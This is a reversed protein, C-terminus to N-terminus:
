VKICEIIARRANCLTTAFLYLKGGEAIGSNKRIVDVTIPFNRVTINAQPIMKGLQKLKKGSFEYQNKVEFIRGPFDEVKEDSTYLHSNLHLKEVKYRYAVSKFAGSKLLAANPEYLYHKVREAPRFTSEKEEERLYSFVQRKERDTYNVATIKTKTPEAPEPGLVFLIEKCENKVALIHIETTEPLLHLTETLDAMPSIKIILRLSKELLSRKLALIDPECESLAFLRKNGASRRAPDVYFTDASLIPIIERVDAQVVQINGAGLVQFNHGAIKCYEPFREVYTLKRAKQSLYWSDIGLGGTLDCVETGCILEQKYRATVESSCQEASLRSPFVLDYNTYWSPLKEKIQRRALIQDVAFPLDRIEYRDANLLLKDTDDSLHTRIFNKLEPTPLTMSKLKIGQLLVNKYPVSAHVFLNKTCKLITKRGTQATFPSFSRESKRLRGENLHGAKQERLRSVSLIIGWYVLRYGIFWKFGREPESNASFIRIKYVSDGINAETVAPM